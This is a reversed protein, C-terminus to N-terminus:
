GKELALVINETTRLVLIYGYDNLMSLIRPPSPRNDEMILFQPWQNRTSSEFFPILVDDERGEVDVKLAAISDIDHEVLVGSLTRMPLRHVERKGEGSRDGIGSKGLNDHIFTFPTEGDRKGIVTEVITVNELNNAAMNFKLRALAAPHPEVALVRVKDLIAAQLTFAGINAGVDVFVGGHALAQRLIKFEKPCYHHPTLLLKSDSVNDWPHCRLRMGLATVDFPGASFRGLLSRFLRRTSLVPSRSLFRSLRIIFSAALEPKRTGFDRTDMSLHRLTM